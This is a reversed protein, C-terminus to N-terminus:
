LVHSIRIVDLYSLKHILGMQGVLFQGLYGLNDPLGSGLISLVEGIILEKWYKEFFKGM